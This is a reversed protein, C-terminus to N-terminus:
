AVFASSSGLTMRPDPRESKDPPFLSGSRRVATRLLKEQELRIIRYCSCAGGELHDRDRIRILGRAQVLVGRRELSEIAESV